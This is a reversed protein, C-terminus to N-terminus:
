AVSLGDRRRERAGRGVALPPPKFPGAGPALIYTCKRGPPPPARRPGGPRDRQAPPPPLCPPTTVVALAIYPLCIQCAASCSRRRFCPTASRQSSPVRSILRSRSAPWATTSAGSVNMTSCSAVRYLP